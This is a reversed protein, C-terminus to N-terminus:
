TERVTVELADMFFPNGHNSVARFKRPPPYSGSATNCAVVSCNPPLAVDEVPTVDGGGLSSAFYGM